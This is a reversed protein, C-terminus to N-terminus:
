IHIKITQLGGAVYVKQIQARVPARLVSEWNNTSICIRCKDGFIGAEKYHKSLKPSFTKNQLQTDQFDFVISGLKLTTCKPSGQHDTWHSLSWSGLCPIHTRDRTPSCVNWMGQMGFDLADFLLLITLFEVFAKFFFPGVWYPPNTIKLEM